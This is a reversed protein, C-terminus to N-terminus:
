IVILRGLGMTLANKLYICRNFLYETTSNSGVWGESWTANGVESVIMKCQDRVKIKCHEGLYRVGSRDTNYVCKGDTCKGNLNCGTEDSECKNDSIGGETEVIVGNWLEWRLDVSQGRFLDYAKTEPSRTLWNCGEDDEDQFKQINEHTWICRGKCWRYLSVLCPLTLVM